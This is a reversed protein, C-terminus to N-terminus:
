AKVHSKAFEKIIRVAQAPDEEHALHGLNAMERTACDPILEAAELVTSKPIAADKEAYVLLVTSALDRLRDRLPELQWNAMMRIAGDCHGSKSFLRAYYRDGAADIDSGTSRRLFKETEGPYRAMRSFIISAFPNTFLMKALSPFIKAALGPFPMLAPTFGILPVEWKQDLLLQAGIAVGASHGVILDPKLSLEKLLLAVSGAMGDLSVKRGTNAQTFGHGPLDLVVVSFHGTLLPMVDRWSHTAAGTGHLLLCVPLKKGKKPGTQQVHWSYGDARVFSSADRNPWDKGDVSWNPYRTV